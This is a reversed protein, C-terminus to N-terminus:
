VSKGFAKIMDSLWKALADTLATRLQPTVAVIRRQPLNSKKPNQHYGPVKPDHKKGGFPVEVTVHGSMLSTIRPSSRMAGSEVLVFSNKKRRITSPKLAPWTGYGRTNFRRDIDELCAEGLRRSLQVDPNAIKEGLNNLARRTNELGEVKIKVGVM